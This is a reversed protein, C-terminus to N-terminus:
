NLLVFAESASRITPCSESFCAALGHWHRTTAMSRASSRSTSTVPGPRARQTLRPPRLCVRWHWSVSAFRCNRTSSSKGPSAGPYVPM